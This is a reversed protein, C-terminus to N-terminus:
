YHYLPSGKFAVALPHMDSKKKSVKSISKLAPQLMLHTTKQPQQRFVAAVSVSKKTRVPSTQKTVNGAHRARLVPGLREGEMNLPRNSIFRTETYSLRNRAISTITVDSLRTNLSPSIGPGTLFTRLDYRLVEAYPIFFHLDHIVSTFAPIPLLYSFIDVSTYSVYRM